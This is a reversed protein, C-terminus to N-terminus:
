ACCWGLTDFKPEADHRARAAHPALPCRELAAQASAAANRLHEPLSGPTRLRGTATDMSFEMATPPGFVADLRSMWGAMRTPKDKGGMRVRYGDSRLEIEPFEYTRAGLAALGMTKGAGGPPFGLYQTIAAYLFKLLDEISFRAREQLAQGKAHYITTAVDEGQGDIM